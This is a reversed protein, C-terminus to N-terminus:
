QKAIQKSTKKSMSIQRQLGAIWRLEARTQAVIHGLVAHGWADAKMAVMTTHLKSLREQRQLLWDHRTQLITKRTEADLVAFLGVRLRFEGESPAEKETFRALRLLLERKGKETLTYLERTQGRKGDTTRQSVWGNEVFRRLLPYVINNHMEGQGALLGALKKLAYGHQPEGLLTSLLLLDNM